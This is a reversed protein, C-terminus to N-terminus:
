TKPKYYVYLDVDVGVYQIAEDAVNSGSIFLMVEQYHEIPFYMRLLHDYVYKHFIRKTGTEYEEQDNPLSIDFAERDNVFLSMRGAVLIDMTADPSARGYDARFSLRDLIGNNPANFTCAAVEAATPYFSDFANIEIECALTHLWLNSYGPAPSWPAKEVLEWAHKSASVIKGTM